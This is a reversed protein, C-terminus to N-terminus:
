WLLNECNSTWTFHKFVEKQHPIILTNTPLLITRSHSSLTNSVLICASLLKLPVTPGGIRWVAVGTIKEKPTVQFFPNIMWMWSVQCSEISFDLTFNLPNRFYYHYLWNFVHFPPPDWPPIQLSGTQLFFYKLM